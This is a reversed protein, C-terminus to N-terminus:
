RLTTLFTTPASSIETTSSVASSVRLQAANGMKWYMAHAALRPQPPTLKAHLQSKLKTWNVLSFDRQQRNPSQPQATNAVTFPIASQERSLVALTVTKEMTSIDTTVHLKLNALQHYTTLSCTVEWTASGVVMFQIASSVLSHVANMILTTILLCISVKQAIKLVVPKKSLLAALQSTRTSCPVTQHSTSAKTCLTEKKVKSPAASVMIIRPITLLM